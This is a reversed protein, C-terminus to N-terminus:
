PFLNRPSVSAGTLSHTSILPLPSFLTGIKSNWCREELYESQGARCLKHRSRIFLRWRFIFVRLLRDKKRSRLNESFQVKINISLMAARCIIWNMKRCWHSTDSFPQDNFLAYSVSHMLIKSLKQVFPLICNKLENFCISNNGYASHM